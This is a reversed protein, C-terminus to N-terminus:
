EKGKRRLARGALAGTPTGNHIAPVGNVFVWRVGEAYQFPDDFTARDALAKPDFVVVDAYYKEQLYGRDDLKLIDAPLGSASRV